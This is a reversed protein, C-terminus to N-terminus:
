PTIHDLDLPDSPPFTLPRSNIISEVETLLTRLSEDKIAHGFDHMLSRLISRITRIQREWSGGMHSASPPNRRWIIDANFNTSVQDQLGSQDLEKLAQNLEKDAGVFNTDQDSYIKMFPPEPTTRCKPLDAMRQELSGCRYRRCKVCKSILSRVTANANIIWFKERLQNLTMSQGSHAIREHAHRIILKTVHSRKPLIIPHKFGEDFDDAKNLRGGVRILDQHDIFPDLKYLSSKKRLRSKKTKTLSRTDQFTEQDINKLTSYEKEFAAKQVVRLICNEAKETEKVTIPRHCSVWVGICRCHFDFGVKSPTTEVSESGSGASSDEDESELAYKDSKRKSLREVGAKRM